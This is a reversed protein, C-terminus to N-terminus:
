TYAKKTYKYISVDKDILMNKEISFQTLFHDWDFLIDCEFKNNIQSVWFTEIYPYFLEYIQKGGIIFINKNPSLDSCNRTHLYIFIEQINNVFLLNDTMIFNSVDKRTLVINIRNVLPRNPLSLFTSYGMIVINDLTMNRFFNMDLSCKWPIRGNKAIGFDLDLAVIAQM